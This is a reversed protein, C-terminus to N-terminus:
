GIINLCIVYYKFLSPPFNGVVTV